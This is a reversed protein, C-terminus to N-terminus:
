AADWLANAQALLRQCETDSEIAEQQREASWWRPLSARVERMRLVLAIQAEERTM